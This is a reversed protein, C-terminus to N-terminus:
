RRQEPVRATYFPRLCETQRNFNGYETLEQKSKSYDTGNVTMGDDSKECAPKDLGVCGGFVRTRYTDITKAVRMTTNNHETTMM